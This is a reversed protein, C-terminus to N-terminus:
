PMYSVIQWGAGKAVDVAGLLDRYSREPAARVYLVHRQGNAHLVHLRAALRGQSVARDNIAYTGDGRLELVIQPGPNSPQAAQAPTPLNVRLISRLKMLLMFIVLLVLLVDILPTVNIDRYTAQGAQLAM